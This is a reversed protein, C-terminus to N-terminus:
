IFLANLEGIIVSSSYEKQFTLYCNEQILNSNNILFFFKSLINSLEKFDKEKVLFGNIGNQILYKPGGCDFAIVPKGYSWAEIITRGFTEPGGYESVSTNVIVDANSYYYSLDNTYPLFKIIYQLKYKKVLTNLENYYMTDIVKGIIWVELEIEGKLLNVVEILYEIGKWRNIMAPLLIIKKDLITKKIINPEKVFNPIIKYKKINKSFFSEYDFFAQTTLLYTHNTNNLSRFIFKQYKWQFDRIYILLKSKKLIGLYSVIALFFAGKNTNVLINKYDNKVLLKILIFLSIVISFFGKGKPFKIANVEKSLNKQHEDNEILIDVDYSKVLKEVILELSKEAGGYGNANSLILLKNM